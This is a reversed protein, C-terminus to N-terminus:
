AVSDRTIRSQRAALAQIPSRPSLQHRESIATLPQLRRGDPHGRQPQSLRALGRPHPSRGPAQLPRPPEALDGQGHRSGQAEQQGQHDPHRALARRHRLDAATRQRPGPLSGRRGPNPLPRRLEVPPPSRGEPRPLPLGTHRAIAVPVTLQGHALTRPRCEIDALRAVPEISAESRRTYSQDLRERGSLHIVNQAPTTGPLGIQGAQGVQHRATNGPASGTITPPRRCECAPRRRTHRAIAEPVTLQGHALTRPRCEIDALRAVPKLSAESRCIYSQDLGRRGSPLIAAM